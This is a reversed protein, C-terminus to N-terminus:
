NWVKQALFIRLELLVFYIMKSLELIWSIVFDWAVSSMGALWVTLFRCFVSGSPHWVALQSQHSLFEYEATTLSVTFSKVCYCTLFYKRYLRTVEFPVLLMWTEKVKSRKIGWHSYSLQFERIAAWWSFGAYTFNAWKRVIAKAVPIKSSTLALPPFCVEFLFAKLICECLHLVPRWELEPV